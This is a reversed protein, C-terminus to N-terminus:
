KRGFVALSGASGAVVCWEGDRSWAVMRGTFGPMRSDGVKVESHAVLEENGGGVGYMKKWDDLTKEWDVNSIPRELSEASQRSSVSGSPSTNRVRSIAGGGGKSKQKTKLFAPRNTANQHDTPTEKTYEGLRKLDWFYMKSKVGMSLFALIPGTNSTPPCLSFRMYLLEGEPILFQTLRM